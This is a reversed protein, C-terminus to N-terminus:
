DRSDAKSFIRAELFAEIGLDQLSPFRPRLTYSIGAQPADIDKQFTTTCKFWEAM